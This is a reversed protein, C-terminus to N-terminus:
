VGIKEQLWLLKRRILAAELMLCEDARISYRDGAKLITRRLNPDLTKTTINNDDLTPVTLDDWKDYCLLGYKFPDLGRGEFADKIQQAVVGIHYRAQDGKEEVSDIFKFQLYNVDEWADLVEDPINKFDTKDRADSTSIVGTGAYITSWRRSSNGLAQNNDNGPFLNGNSTKLTLLSDADVGVGNHRWNFDGGSSSVNNIDTNFDM